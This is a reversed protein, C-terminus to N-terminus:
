KGPTIWDKKIVKTYLYIKIKLELDERNWQELSYNYCMVHATTM